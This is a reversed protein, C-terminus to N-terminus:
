VVVLSEFLQDVTGAMKQVKKVLARKRLRWQAVAGQIYQVHEKDLEDTSTFLSSPYVSSFMSSTAAALSATAAALSSTLPPLLAAISAFTSPKSPQDKVPDSAKADKSLLDKTSLDQDPMSVVSLDPSASSDAATTASSSASSSISASRRQVHLQTSPARGAEKEGGAAVAEGVVTEADDSGASISSPAPSPSVVEERADVVRGSASREVVSVGCIAAMDAPRVDDLRELCRLLLEDVERIRKVLMAQEKGGKGKLGEVEKVLELLRPGLVKAVEDEAKKVAAAIGARHRRFRAMTRRTNHNRVMLKMGYTLAVGAAITTCVGAFVAMATSPTQTPALLKM